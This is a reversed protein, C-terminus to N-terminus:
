GFTCEELGYKTALNGARVIGKQLEPPPTKGEFEKVEDLWDEFGVVIAEVQREDGRPAGLERLAAMQQEMSPVYVDQLSGVFGEKLSEPNDERYADLEKIRAERFKACVANAQKVYQAKSVSATEIGEDAPNSGGGEDGTGTTAAANDTSASDTSDDGGCGSALGTTLLAVLMFIAVKFRM